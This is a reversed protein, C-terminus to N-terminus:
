ATPRGCVICYTWGAELETGCHACSIRYLDAGCFPCFRLDTRDPLAQRCHHCSTGPPMPGSTPPPTETWEETTEFGPPPAPTPVTPVAPFPVTTVDDPDGNVYGSEDPHNGAPPAGDYGTPAEAPPSTRLDPPAYAEHPTRAQQIETVNLYVKAAAYDRFAGPNPNVSAAETALADQVEPPDVSVLSGQGALLRLLAMEYDENTDFGLASRYRRYPLIRQYIEAVEIPRRLRDPEKDSLVEVLQRFIRTVEDM